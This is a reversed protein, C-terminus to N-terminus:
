NSVVEDISMGMVGKQGHRSSFKDGIQPCRVQRLRVKTSRYGEENDFVSVHDVLSRSPNIPAKRGVKDSDCYSGASYCPARYVQSMDLKIFSKRNQAANEELVRRATLQTKGTNVFM